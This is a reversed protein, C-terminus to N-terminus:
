EDVDIGNITGDTHGDNTYCWTVIPREWPAIYPATYPPTYPPPNWPYTYTYDPTEPFDWVIETPLHDRYMERAKKLNSKTVGFDGCVCYVLFLPMDVESVVIPEARMSHETTATM